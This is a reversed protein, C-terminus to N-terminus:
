QTPFAVSHGHCNQIEGIGRGIRKGTEHPQRPDLFLCEEFEMVSILDRVVLGTDLLAKVSGKVQMEVRALLSNGESSM